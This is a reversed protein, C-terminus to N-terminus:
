FDMAGPQRQGSEGVAKGALAGLHEAFGFHGIKDFHPVASKERGGFPNKGAIDGEHNNGFTDSRRKIEELNGVAV